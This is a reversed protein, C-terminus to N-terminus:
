VNMIKRLNSLCTHMDFNDECFLKGNEGMKLLEDKPKTTFCIIEKALNEFEGANVSIGCNAEQILTAGEGNLMAIIPKSAAMYAQIKAPATLNFILEDKLTVLLIDSCEFLKPMLKLPLKGLLQINDKLDNERIFNEIWAKKRGDGAIIFKIDTRTKLLLATKMISEFDQAEGINGAFLVRFGSYLTPLEVSDKLPSTFVNEAWNPFYIIKDQNVGKKTISSEFGKSSILIQSSNNYIIRVIKEFFGLIYKNNIGGASHLSEPWLDLVWLYLPVNHIKKYLVAPLALTVPSLQQVFICDFKKRMALMIIYISASIAYSVYNLLLSIAGGKGRPFIPVRIITVGNITEKNKMFFGYGKYFKGHPYNPIATVVTVENDKALDFAIDNGKFVEPYFYQSIFLIKKKSM